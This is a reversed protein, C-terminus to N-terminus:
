NAESINELVVKAPYFDVAMNESLSSVTVEWTNGGTLLFEYYGTAGTTYTHSTIGTVMVTASEFPTTGDSCFVNGSLKYWVRPGTGSLTTSASSNLADFAEITYHYYSCPPLLIGKSYEVGAVYDTVGQPVELVFSQYLSQGQYVNVKPYGTKPSHGDSDRYVATVTYTDSACGTFPNVPTAAEVLVPKTNVFPGSVDSLCKYADYEDKVEM